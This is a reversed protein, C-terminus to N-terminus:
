DEFVIKKGESVTGTYSIKMKEKKKAAWSPHLVEDPLVPKPAKIPNVSHRLRSINPRINTAVERTIPRESDKKNSKIDPREGVPMYKSLELMNKKKSAHLQRRRRKEEKEKAAVEAEDEIDILSEM